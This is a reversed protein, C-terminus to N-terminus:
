RPTAPNATRPAPCPTGAIGQSAPKPFGGIWRKRERWVASWQEAEALHGPRRTLRARAGHALARSLPWFAVCTRGLPRLWTPFYREILEVKAALLKVMKGAHTRESAGGLHIITAEPALMPRAGLARARLCLDAEEGYMFFAPDFGGLRQWLDRRVMLFCGAIVDVERATDRQWGPMPESNFLPSSPFLNALGTTRCLLSWPTMRAFACTPDLRGDAHLTRGGCIGAEPHACAFALLREIARDLIITDPNLLLLHEGQAIEAALNNARAFGLNDARALLRAHPAVEGIAQASGDPSNNDVVIIETSVRHTQAGISALCALTMARTNYSVIIISVDIDAADTM